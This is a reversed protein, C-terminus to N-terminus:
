KSVKSDQEALLVADVIGNALWAETYGLAALAAREPGTLGSM